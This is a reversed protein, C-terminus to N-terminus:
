DRLEGVHSRGAVLTEGITALAGTGHVQRYGIVVIAVISGGVVINASGITGSVVDIVSGFSCESEVIRHILQLV